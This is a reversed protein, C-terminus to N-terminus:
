SLAANVISCSSQVRMQMNLSQSGFVYVCIHALALNRSLTILCLWKQVPLSTLLSASVCTDSLPRTELYDSGDKLM